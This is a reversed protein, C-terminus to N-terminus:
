RKKSNNYILFAGALGAMILLPTPLSFGEQKEPAPNTHTPDAHFVDGLYQQQSARTYLTDYTSVNPGAPTPDEHNEIGDGDIDDDDENKVGDGDIDDDEPDPIGDGDTDTPNPPPAGPGDAGNNNYILTNSRPGTEGLTAYISAGDKADENFLNFKPGSSKRVGNVYWAPNTDFTPTWKENVTYVKAVGAGGFGSETGTFVSITISTPPPITPPAPTGPAPPAPGGPPPTYSGPAGKTYVCKGKTFVYDPLCNKQAPQTTPPKNLNMFDRPDRGVCADQDANYMFGLSCIQVPIYDQPTDGEGLEVQYTISATATPTFNKDVRWRREDTLVEVRFSYVGLKDTPANLSGQDSIFQDDKFWRFLTWGGQPYEGRLTLPQNLKVKLINGPSYGAIGVPLINAM